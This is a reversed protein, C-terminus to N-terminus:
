AMFRSGDPAMSLVSSAGSITRNRLIVGSAVEYVFIYTTAATPTIVGVIFSGDPTRPLRGTFTLTPRPLTTPPLPAPTTPLAPVSVTQLAQGSAQTQDFIALTGQPVGAVVGTGLMSVLVRGDSGVEVGQPASPLTQTQTVSNKSLDVVTLLPAGAAVQATTVGSAVYLWKGDMSIAGSIPRAGVQIAGVIQNSAYDFIRVQNTNNYILYLRNRLEDLVVDS